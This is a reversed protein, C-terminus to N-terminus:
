RSPRRAVAGQDRRRPRPVRVRRRDGGDPRQRDAGRHQDRAQQIQPVDGIGSSV